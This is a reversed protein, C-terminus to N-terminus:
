FKVQKTIRAHIFRHKSEDELTLEKLYLTIDKYQSPDLAIYYPINYTFKDLKVFYVGGSSEGYRSLFMGGSKLAIALSKGGYHSEIEVVSHINEPKVMDTLRIKKIVKVKM